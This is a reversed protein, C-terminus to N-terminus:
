PLTIECTRNKGCVTATVTWVGSAPNEFTRRNRPPITVTVGGPGTITVQRGDDCPGLKGGAASLTTAGNVTIMGIGCWPVCDCPPADIPGNVAPLDLKVAVTVGTNATVVVPLSLSVETENTEGSTSDIFTGVSMFRLRHQGPPLLRFRFEGQAGTLQPHSFGDVEVLQNTLPVGQANVVTGEIRGFEDRPPHPVSKFFRREEDAPASVPPSSAPMQLFPGTVDKASALSGASPQADIEVNGNGGAKATLSVASPEADGYESFGVNVQSGFGFSSATAAVGVLVTNSMTVTGSSLPIWDHGNESYAANFVHDKRELSLWRNPSAPPVRTQTTGQGTGPLSRFTFTIINGFPPLPPLGAIGPNFPPFQELALVVSKSNAALTERVHLGGNASAGGFAVSDMRVKVRFDGQRPEHFFWGDDTFRFGNGGTIIKGSGAAASEAAALIPTGTGIRASTAWVRGTVAGGLYGNGRADRLNASPSVTFTGTVAGALTLNVTRGSTRFLGDTAFEGVGLTARLVAISGGNVTYNAPNTATTLDLPRDFQLGVNTGNVSAASVATLGPAFAQSAREVNSTVSGFPSTVVVCYEKDPEDPLHEMTLTPGTAGPIPAFADLANPGNAARLGSPALPVGFRRSFWQLLWPAPMNNKVVRWRFRGSASDLESRDAAAIKVYENEQNLLHEDLAETDAEQYYDRRTPWNQRGDYAFREEAVLRRWAESGPPVNPDYTSQVTAQLELSSYRIVDRFRIRIFNPETQNDYQDLSNRGERTGGGDGTFVEGTDDPTEIAYPDRAILHKQGTLWDILYLEGGWVAVLWRHNGPEPVRFHFQLLLGYIGEPLGAFPDPPGDFSPLRLIRVPFGPFLWHARLHEAGGEGLPGYIYATVPNANPGPVREAEDPFANFNLDQSRGSAIDLADPIGNGNADNVRKGWNAPDVAGSFNPQAACPGAPESTDALLVFGACAEARTDDTYAGEVRLTGESCSGSACQGWSRMVVSVETSQGPGLKPLRQAIEPQTYPHGPLPLCFPTFDWFAIPFDDGAADAVAYVGDALGGGEPRVARQKSTAFATLMVDQTGNNKVRYRFFNQDGPGVRAFPSNTLADLPEMALTPVGPQGPADPQICVVTDGRATTTLGDDFTVSASGSVVYSGAAPIPSFRVLYATNAGADSCSPIPNLNTTVSVVPNTAPNIPTLTVTATGSVSVPPNPCASGCATGCRLFLNVWIGPFTTVTSAAPTGKTMVLTRACNTLVLCLDGKCARAPEPALAILSM